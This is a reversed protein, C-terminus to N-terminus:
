PQYIFNGVVNSVTDSTETSVYFQNTKTDFTGYVNEIQTPLLQATFTFLRTNRLNASNFPMSYIVTGLPDLVSVSIHEPNSGVNPWFLNYQIGPTLTVQQDIPGFGDTFTSGINNIVNIAGQRIQMINGQWGNGLSDFMRITYINSVSTTIPYSLHVMMTTDTIRRRMLTVAIDSSYTYLNASPSVVYILLPNLQILMLYNNALITANIATLPTPFTVVTYGSDTLALARATSYAFLTDNIGVDSRMRGINTFTNATYSELTGNRFMTITGNSNLRILKSGTFVIGELINPDNGQAIIVGDTIRVFVYDRQTGQYTASVYVYGLMRGILFTLSYTSPLCIM